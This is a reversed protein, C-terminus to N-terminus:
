NCNCNCGPCHSSAYISCLAPCSVELKLVLIATAAAVCALCEESDAGKSICIGAACGAEAVFFVTWAASVCNDKIGTSLLCCSICNGGQTACEGPGCLLEDCYTACCNISAFESPLFMVNSPANFVKSESNGFDVRMRTLTTSPVEDPLVLGWQTALRFETLSRDFAIAGFVSRQTRNHLVEGSSAFTLGSSMRASRNSRLLPDSQDRLDPEGDAYTYVLRQGQNTAISSVRNLSDYGYRASIGRGPENIGTVNGNDDYILNLQAGNQNDLTKVSKDSDLHLFQRNEQGQADTVLIETLSGAPNYQYQVQAGDSFASLRRLGLADYRYTNSTGDPFAAKRLRGDALYRLSTRKGDGGVAEVIQGDADFEFEVRRDFGKLTELTADDRVLEVPSGPAAFADIGIRTLDGQPSYDYRYRRQGDSRETLNGREDYHLTMQFAAGVIVALRGAQDYAYKLDEKSDSVGDQRSRGLLRGVDDYELEAVAIGGRLLRKVRNEADLELTTEVGEANRLAVTIGDENQRYVSINGNADEVSTRLGDYSFRFSAGPSDCDIVRGRDDYVVNFNKQGTPDVAETLRKSEDYAYTWTNGGLDIVQSLLGEQSYRYFASRGQDDRIAVVRGRPDRDIDIRRGNGGLLGALRGREYRLSVTNGNRDTVRTLRFTRSGAATDKPLGREAVAAASRVSPTGSSYEKVFGTNLVLRLKDNDSFSLSMIDTLEPRVLFFGRGKQVFRRSVASDDLLVASGDDRIQITEAASLHWGQGFDGELSSDYVRAAMLPIRGVTVLDRRVFSLQGSGAAVYGAPAGDFVSRPNHFYVNLRRRDLFENLTKLYPQFDRAEASITDAPTRERGQALAPALLFGALTTMCLLRKWVDHYQIM